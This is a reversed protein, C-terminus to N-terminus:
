WSGSAGGGGSSGGGFGGFGGGGSSGGGGYGGMSSSGGSSSSRLAEALMYYGMFKYKELWEFAEEDNLAASATAAWASQRHSLLYNRADEDDDLASIFALITKCEFRKLWEYAKENGYVLVDCLAALEKCDNELLWKYAEEDVAMAKSLKVLEAEKYEQKM